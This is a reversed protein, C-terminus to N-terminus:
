ALSSVLALLARPSFPKALYGDAGAALGAHQDSTAHCASLMVVKMRPPAGDGGPQKLCRCVDLGDLSGPMMVDLLVLDPALQGALRLAASGNAAEHVEHGGTELTMRVLERIDQQDDVVLIRKM